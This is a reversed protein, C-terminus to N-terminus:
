VRMKWGIFPVAVHFDFGAGYHREYKGNRFDAPTQEIFGIGDVRSQSPRITRRVDM